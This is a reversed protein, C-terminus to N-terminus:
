KRINGITSNYQVQACFDGGGLTPLCSSDVDKDVYMDEAGINFRTIITSPLNSHETYTVESVYADKPLINVGGNLDGATVSACNDVTKKFLGKPTNIVNGSSATFYYLTNSTCIYDLTAVSGKVISAGSNASNKIDQHFNRSADNLKTIYSAKQYTKSIGIIVTSAILIAVSFISTAIMLEVMTFGNQLSNPKINRGM